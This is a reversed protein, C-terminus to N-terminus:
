NYELAEFNVVTFTSACYISFLCTILRLSATAGCNGMPSSTDSRSGSRLLTGRTEFAHRSWFMPSSLWLTDAYKMEHLIYSQM